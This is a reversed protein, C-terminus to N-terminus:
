QEREPQRAGVLEEHQCEAASLETDHASPDGPLEQGIQRVHDLGGARLPCTQAPHHAPAAGGDVNTTVRQHCVHM